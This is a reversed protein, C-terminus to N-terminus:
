MHVILRINQHYYSIYPSNHKDRYGLEKMNLM